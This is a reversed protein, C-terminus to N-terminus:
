IAECTYIEDRLVCQQTNRACMEGGCSCSSADLSCTSTCTLPMVAGLFGREACTRQGATTGFDGGDCPEFGNRVGDGCMGKCGGTNIKCDKTCTLNGSYFGQTICTKKAFDTGDCEETSHKIGDGCAGTCGTIDFSCDAACKLGDPVTSGFDLCTKGNLNTGDCADIANIIGDGCMGVLCLGTQCTGNGFEPIACGAGESKQVCATAISQVVCRGRACAQGAPCVLGGCKQSESRVCGVAGLAVLLLVAAANRFAVISPM